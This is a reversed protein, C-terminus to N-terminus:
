SKIQRLLENLKASQTTALVTPITAKTGFEALANELVMLKVETKTMIGFREKLSTLCERSKSTIARPMSEPTTGTHSAVEFDINRDFWIALNPDQTLIEQLHELAKEFASEAKNGLETVKARRLSLSNRANSKDATYQEYRGNRMLGEQLLKEYHAVEDPKVQKKLELQEAWTAKWTKYQEKSLVLKVDRAQVEEGGKIRKILETIRQQKSKSTYRPM